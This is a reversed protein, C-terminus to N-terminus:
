NNQLESTKTIKLSGCSPDLRFCGSVTELFTEVATRCGNWDFYDDIIISGGIALKPFIRELSVTVPEFWDVDIHAFAITQLPNLTDHLLGEVLSVSDSKLNIGFKTLNTEVVDRLNDFYGYYKDSGLGTARGEAIVQYRDKADKEDLPGPAPIQGFVDYIKFVRNKEKTSAILIASGGLACGVEIFEGPIEAVRIEKCTKSIQLLRRKSLYTLHLKKIDNVCRWVSVGLYIFALETLIKDKQIHLKNLYRVSM